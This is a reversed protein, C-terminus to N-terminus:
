HFEYTYTDVYKLVGKKGYHKEQILLGENNYEKETKSTLKGNSYHIRSIENDKNDKVAIYKYKEKGNLYSIYEFNGIGNNSWIQKRFEKGNKYRIDTTKGDIKEWLHNIMNNESYSERKIVTDTEKKYTVMTKRVKGEYISEYTEIKNGNEDVHTNKCVQNKNKLEKKTSEGIPNCKYTTTFKLKGKKNLRTVTAKDGAENYSYVLKNFPLELSKKFYLYESIKNSDVWKRTTKSVLKGDKTQTAEKLRNYENYTYTYKIQSKGEIGTTKQIPLNGKYLYSTEYMKHKSWKTRNLILDGSKNFEKNFELEKKSKGGKLTEREKKLTKIGYTKVKEIEKPNMVYPRSNEFFSPVQNQYNISYYILGEHHTSYIQCKSSMSILGMGLFLLFSKKM